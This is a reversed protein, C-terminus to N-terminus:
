FRYVYGAFVLYEALDGGKPHTPTLDTKFDSALKMPVNLTLSGRGLGFSVGPDAYLTYGPRRFGDDGGGIVDRKPIGDIRSGLAVTLGRAASVVYSGGARATYVDPVSLHIGTGLGRANAFQVTTKVRPSVLYSGSAYAFLGGRLRAFGQSQLITGWGGDGLQIAQDVKYRTTGTTTFFDDEVGNNGTPAKIGLGLAVNANDRVAPNGVWYTGILSMDGLGGASVKHRALDAYLRSHTGYQFPLTLTLGLRSTLGYSVSIDLSTINLYLPQGFPAKTEDVKTGVYWEDATLRRYALGVQWQHREVNSSSQGGLSPTTFRVPM